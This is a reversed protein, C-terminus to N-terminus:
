ARTRSRSGPRIPSPRSSSSNVPASRRSASARWCSIASRSGKACYRCASRLACTARAPRAPSSRPISPSMSCRFSVVSPSRETASSRRPRTSGTAGAARWANVYEDPFGYSAAFRYLDSERRYIAVRDANCLRAATECVNALAPELDFASRSIVNLLDATATQQALSEELDRTRARVEDLLRANDIAIAAQDAFSKLLEIRRAPFAHTVASGYSFVGVVGHSRSVIPVSIASRYGSIEAARGWPLETENPIDPTYVIGGTVWARGILTARTAPFPRKHLYDIWEPAGGFHVRLRMLGDQQLHITSNGCFSGAADVLTQLMVDLDAGSRSIVKLVDATATQQALSEELDRTKAQVQEFLRVNEIAIVAQDAFTKVLEIQRETFAGPAPRGLSFVGIVEGERMLPVSVLARYGGLEQGRSLRYDPDATVDPFHAVEGTLAARGVGSYPSPPQPNDLVWREFAEPYGKQKTMRLLPGDRM